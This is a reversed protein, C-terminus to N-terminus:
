FFYYICWNLHFQSATKQKMFILSFYICKTTLAIVAGDIKSAFPIILLIVFASINTELGLADLNSFDKRSPGSYNWADRSTARLNLFRLRDKKSIHIIHKRINTKKTNDSFNQRFNIHKVFKRYRIPWFLTAMFHEDAWIKRAELCKRRKPGVSFKARESNEYLTSTLILIILYKEAANNLLM